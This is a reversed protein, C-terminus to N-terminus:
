NLIQETVGDQHIVSQDTLYVLHKEDLVAAKCPSLDMDLRQLRSVAICPWPPTKAASALLPSAPLPSHEAQPILWAKLAPTKIVEEADM